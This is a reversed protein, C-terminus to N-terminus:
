KKKSKLLLAKNEEQLRKKDEILAKIDKTLKANIEETMENKKELLSILRQSSAITEKALGSIERMDKQYRFFARFETGVVASIALLLGLLYYEVRYKLVGVSVIFYVILSGYVLLEPIIKKLM